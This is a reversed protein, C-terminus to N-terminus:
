LLAAHRDVLSLASRTARDADATARSPSRPSTVYHNYYSSGETLPGLVVLTPQARGHVDIAHGGGDVDAGLEVDLRRVARLRGADHLQRVVPNASASVSPAPRFGCVVRHLEITAPVALATSELLWRDGARTLRADPGLGPKLVGARILALLEENRELQPGIVNRNIEGAFRGFFYPLSEDDLGDGDVARRVVERLDRLVEFAAKLPSGDLGLGADALDLEVQETFWARYSDETSLAAAPVGTDWASLAIAEIREAERATAAMTRIRHRMEAHVLPVVDERLNLRGDARRTRAERLAQETLHRPPLAGSRYPRPRARAPLGSRTVLM